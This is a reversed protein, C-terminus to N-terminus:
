GPPLLGNRRTVESFWRASQKPIRRQTPYDVYVLGFRKSFGWAWEFNDILTWVFYGRLDIGDAIARHATRFHSDLYAVRLPDAVTGDAAVEDAYAAGNETGDRLARDGRGRWRRVHTVLEDCCGVVDKPSTPRLRAQKDMHVSPLSVTRPRGLRM